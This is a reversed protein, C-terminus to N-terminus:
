RRADALAHQVWASYVFQDKQSEWEPLPLADLQDPTLLPVDAALAPIGADRDPRMSSRNFHLGVQAAWTGIDVTPRASLAKGHWNAFHLQHDLWEAAPKMIWNPRHSVGPLFITEFANTSSGRAAIARQRLDAFFEPGHHPIDVVTDNSGNMILTPGSRARLAFIMAGRDGLFALAHYPGSQCMVDHSSDWYGDPGDLDGGGTLLLAHIRPDAAGDIAAVFSGMSFGLVAIRHPAVDNRQLLYSVAQMADTLMLGGMRAPMTPVDIERDHESTGDKHNDNREGEGVPDYSLVIAGARAYLIGTYWTYWTGKDAGHGDIMVIAPLRGSSHAPRFIDAPVRMGYETAYTVKEVVVDPTPSFSGYTKIDLDPLPNPIFLAARIKAQLQAAQGRTLEASASSTHPVIALLIVVSALIRNHQIRPLTM